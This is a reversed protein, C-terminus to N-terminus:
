KKVAESKSGMTGSLKIAIEAMPVKLGVEGEMKGTSTGGYVTGDICGDLTVTVKLKSGDSAPVSQGMIGLSAIPLLMTYEVVGFKAKDKDYVKVLKGSVKVKDKDVALEDGFLKEVAKVDIDWTDGVKVAKKPLMLEETDVDDKKNFEKDLVEAAAAKVNEGDITFTYKDKGKEILVTKGKLGLDVKEGMKLVEATEYTRKLKTPKVDKEGKEVVEETYVFKSGGKEKQEPQAQGGATVNVVTDVDETKTEKVVDGKGAKKLKIMIPEDAAGAAGAALGAALVAALLRKLM